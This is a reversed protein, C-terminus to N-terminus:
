KSSPAFGKTKKELYMRIAALNYPFFRDPEKEVLEKLDELTIWFPNVGDYIGKETLKGRAKCILFFGMYNSGKFNGGCFPTFALSEKGMSSAKCTETEIETIELGCEERVERKLAEFITEGKEIRGGPLELLGSYKRDEKKLRTQLLIERKGNREGEIIGAVTAKLYSM